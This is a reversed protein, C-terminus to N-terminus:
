ARHVKRENFVDSLWEDTAAFAKARIKPRSLFVDHLAGEIVITTSLSSANSAQQWMQSPMLILDANYSERSLKKSFHHTHSTLLLTPVGTDGKGSHLRRIERAVGLLWQLYKPRPELPKLRLNYNWEGAETVHLSRGYTPNIGGPLLMNPQLKHVVPLVRNIIFRVAPNFQLGFWPSNM